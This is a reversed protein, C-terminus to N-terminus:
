DQKELYSALVYYVHIVHMFLYRLASFSPLYFTQHFQSIMQSEGLKFYYNNPQDIWKGFKKGGFAQFLYNWWIDERGFKGAIHYGGYPLRTFNIKFVTRLFYNNVISLSSNSTFIYYNTNKYVDSFKRYVICALQVRVPM